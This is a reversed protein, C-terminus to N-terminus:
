GEGLLEEIKDKMAKFEVPDFLRTLFAINGKQDIIVNRTVGSSKSAFKGFIDAGPDFALPYTIKTKERLLQIKELPEDRDVGILVFNKDKHKLWIDEEIHPMEKICVGCWSATFQLMVVKGKWDASSIKTGDELTMELDPSKQGVSVIYGRSDVAPGVEEQTVTEKKAAPPTSTQKNEEKLISQKPTCSIMVLMLVFFIINKM